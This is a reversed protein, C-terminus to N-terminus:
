ARRRSVSITRSRPDVEYVVLDVGDGPRLVSTLDTPDASWEDWALVGEIGPELEVFAQEREVRLARGQLHAGPELRDPMARWPDDTLQKIGLSFRENEVDVNLVVAEVDLGEPYLDSPHKFNGSWSLDSIHVLGDIGEEVGVFVGFDTINRIPGHIVTGVPFRKALLAWPNPETQKIGLSIRKQSIDIDLVLADVEDGISFLKSPHKVRKTWSMETVHVLGEIGPELEVFAGYDTLSVISGHVRTGVTYKKDAETWPDDQIQKLGLSVRETAPDFKLVKVRLEEGVKFADSPHNLRGWSMDTIHLLGDIGGLDIFAGYETINKVVGDLIAGEQLRALTQEKLAAREHEIVARRSLVINNRRKNFKIVKFRHREGILKDLNRVPRIDVQSGPLFAKVGIDVQLGGKVRSTIIGEIAEEKEFAQAIDDWVRMRDAKEKSLICLGDVNERKSEIFVQIRDGERIQPKGDVIPFESAWVVGESKFGFDVIVQDKRVAVVTGKVIDGERVDEEHLSEELMDIFSMADDQTPPNSGSM